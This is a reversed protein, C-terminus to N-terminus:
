LCCSPSLYQLRGFADVTKIVRVQSPDVLKKTVSCQVQLTQLNLTLETDGPLVVTRQDSSYAYEQRMKKSVEVRIDGQKGSFESVILIRPAVEEMLSYCGFYGLSDENYKVKSYDSPSTDELGTILIDCRGLNHSLLPSWPTGSLYGLTSLSRGDAGKCELRIGLCSTSDNTTSLDDQTRTLFYQLTLRENLEVKEVEPSDIFLELCHVTNREQKFNPKLQASIQRYAQQNLYYHIIHLDDSTRNAANVQYNLKYIAETECYSEPADRTVVVCDVDKIHLGQQHLNNLFNKGPNIAVGTGNWRIFLGGTTNAEKSKLLSHGITEQSKNKEWGHLVFLSNDLPQKRTDAAVIYDSILKEEEEKYNKIRDDLTQESNLDVGLHDSLFQSTSEAEVAYDSSALQELTATAENYLPTETETETATCEESSEETKLDEKEKETNELEACEEESHQKEEKEVVATAAKTNFLRSLESVEEDALSVPQHRNM